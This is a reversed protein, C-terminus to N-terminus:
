CYCSAPLFQVTYHFSEYYLIINALYTVRTPYCAWNYDSFRFLLSWTRLGLLLHFIINFLITKSLYSTTVKIENLQDFICQLTSSNEALYPVTFYPWPSRCWSHTPWYRRQKINWKQTYCSTLRIVLSLVCGCALLVALTNQVLFKTTARAADAPRSHQNTVKFDVSVRKAQDGTRIGWPVSSDTPQLATHIQLYMGGNRLFLSYLTRFISATYEESVNTNVYLDM